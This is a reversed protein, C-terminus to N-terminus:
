CLTWGRTAGLAMCGVLRGGIIEVALGRSLDSRPPHPLDKLNTHAFSTLM